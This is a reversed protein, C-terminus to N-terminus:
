TFMFAYLIFLFHYKILLLLLSFMSSSSFLVKIEYYYSEFSSSSFRVLSKQRVNYQYTRYFFEPLRAILDSALVVRWIGLNNTLPSANASLYDRWYANGSQPCGFNVNIVKRNRNLSAFATAVLIANAAGLSHGTTWLKFSPHQQLLTQTKSYIQEWIDGTFIANNFGAHVRVKKTVKEDFTANIADLVVTSNNGFPKTFINVDELSTRIDDTGAFVIAIYREIKNSVLLVQTGLTEDHIYMECTLYKTINKHSSPFNACTFNQDYKFDYVLSSLRAMSVVDNYSPFVESYARNDKVDDVSEDGSSSVVTRLKLILVLFPLFHVIMLPIVRM